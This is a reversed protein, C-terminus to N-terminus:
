DVRWRKGCGLCRVFTSMPEDASRVQKQFAITRESGCSECQHVGEEAEITSQLNDVELQVRERENELLPSNMVLDKSSSSERLYTVVNEFPLKQLLNITDITVQPRDKSLIRGGNAYELNVLTNVQEASLRRGEGLDLNTLVLTVPDVPAKARPTPAQTTKTATTTKQRVVVKPPM